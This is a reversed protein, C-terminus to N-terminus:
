GYPVKWLERLETYLVSFISYNHFPSYFFYYHRLIAKFAHLMSVLLSLTLYRVQSRDVGKGWIGAVARLEPWTRPYIYSPLIVICIYLMNYEIWHWNYETSWFIYVSLNKANMSNSKYPLPSWVWSLVSHIELEARLHFGKVYKDSKKSMWHLNSAISFFFFFSKIFLLCNKGLNM